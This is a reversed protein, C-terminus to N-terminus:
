RPAEERSIQWDLTRRTMNALEAMTDAFQTTVCNPPMIIGVLQLGDKVVVYQQGKRGMRVYLDLEAADSVPDLHRRSIYILKDEWRLPLMEAGNVRIVVGSEVVRQEGACVDRVDMWEPLDDQAFMIEDQKKDPVDLMRYLEMETVYPLGYLPYLAEGDGLWQVEVEGSARVQNYLKYMGARSCLAALKKLKM